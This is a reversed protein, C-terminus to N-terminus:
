AHPIPHCKEASSLWYLTARPSRGGLMDHMLALVEDRFLFGVEETEVALVKQVVKRSTSMDATTIISSSNYSTALCTTHQSLQHFPSPSLCSPTSALGKIAAALLVLAFLFM